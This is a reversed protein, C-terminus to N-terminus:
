ATNIGQPLSINSGLTWKNSIGSANALLGGTASLAAGIPAEKATAEDLAAQSTDSAAQTRYGYAQLQSNNLVTESDLQNVERQGARVDVASGTNVDIGSAAQGAKIAGVQEAGKMSTDAAKIQGAAIARTANQQEIQANQQAVHAAYSAADGQAIGAGLTGIASIGAGITGLTSAAGSAGGILAAIPAVFAM